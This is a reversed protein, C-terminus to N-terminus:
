PRAEMAAVEGDSTEDQMLQDGEMDVLALYDGAMSKLRDALDRTEAREAFRLCFEAKRRLEELNM